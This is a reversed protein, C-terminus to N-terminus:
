RRGIAAAVRGLDVPTKNHGIILELCIYRAADIGHNWDDVPRNLWHGYRDQM